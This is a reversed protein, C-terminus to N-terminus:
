GRPDFFLLPRVRCCSLDTKAQRSSPTPRSEPSVQESFRASLDAGPAVQRIEGVPPVCRKLRHFPVPRAIPHCFADNRAQSLLAQFSTPNLLFFRLRVQREGRRLWDSSRGRLDVRGSRRTLYTTKRLACSHVLFLDHKWYYVKAPVRSM